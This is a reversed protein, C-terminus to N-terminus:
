RQVVPGISVDILLERYIRAGVVPRGSAHCWSAWRNVSDHSLRPLALLEILCLAWWSSQTSVFNISVRLTSNLNVGSENHTRIFILTSFWRYKKGLKLEAVFTAWLLLLLFSGARNQAARRPVVHSKNEYLGAIKQLVFSTCCPESKQATLWGM